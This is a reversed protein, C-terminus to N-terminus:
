FQEGICDTVCDIIEEIADSAEQKTLTPDKALDEEGLEILFNRQKETALGTLEKKM